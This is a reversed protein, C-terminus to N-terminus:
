ARRLLRVLLETDDVTIEDVPPHRLGPRFVDKGVLAIKENAEKSDLLMHYIGRDYPRRNMDDPVKRVFAAPDCELESGCMCDDEGGNAAPETEGAVGSDLIDKEEMYSRIGACADEDFGPRKGAVRQLMEDRTLRGAAHLFHLTAAIELFGADNEHGRIFEKFGEFRGNTTPSAFAMRVGQPIDEYFESLAFGSAALTSCYPGRLYWSYDYGLYVNSAQLLYVFKQVRLRHDFDHMGFEFRPFQRLVYGLDVPQRKM